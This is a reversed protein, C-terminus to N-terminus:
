GSVGERVRAFGEACALAWARAADLDAESPGGDIELPPAAARAGLAEVREALRRTAVCFYPDYDHDGLGVTGYALGSCDPSVEDLADMFDKANDPPTGESWTCMVVVVQAHEGLVEPVAEAMDVVHADFGADALADAVEDAVRESNGTQSGVLVLVDPHAARLDPRRPAM